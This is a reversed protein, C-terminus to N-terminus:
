EEVVGESDVVVQAEPVTAQAQLAKKRDGYAKRLAKMQDAPLGAAQIAPVLAELASLSEASAISSAINAALDGAGEGEVVTAEVRVNAPRRSDRIEDIEDDSYVGMLLDPYVARCIASACRARLMAEPHKKWNDKGALGARSAQEMSYSMTTPEPDGERQTQMICIKDTSEVVRLFKCEARRKVLALLLESSLGVKGEIVHLSRVSQMTTLGLERGTMTALLVDAASRFHKPMLQSRCLVDALQMASKLDHPEFATLAQSAAGQGALVIGTENKDNTTM